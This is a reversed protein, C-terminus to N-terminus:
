GAGPAAGQKGPGQKGSRIMCVRGRQTEILFRGENGSKGPLRAHSTVDVPRTSTRCRDRTENGRLRWDVRHTWVLRGSVMGESSSQKPLVAPPM